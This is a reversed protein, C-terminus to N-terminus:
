DEVVALAAEAALRDAQELLETVLEVQQLQVTAVQVLLVVAAVAQQEMLLMTVEAVVEAAAALM